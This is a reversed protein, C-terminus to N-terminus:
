TEYLSDSKKKWATAESVDPYHLLISESSEMLPQVLSIEEGENEKVLYFRNLALDSYTAM